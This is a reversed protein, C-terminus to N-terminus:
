YSRIDGRRAFKKLRAGVRRTLTVHRDRTKRLLTVIEDKAIDIAAKPSEEQALATLREGFHTLIIEAKWIRGQQPHGAARGIDVECRAADDTVTKEIAALKEDLYASVAPELDYDTTKQRVDM